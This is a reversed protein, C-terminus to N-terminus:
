RKNAYGAGDRVSVSTEGAIHARDRWARGSCHTPSLGRYRCMQPQRSTFSTLAAWRRSVTHQFFAEQNLTAVCECTIRGVGGLTSTQELSVAGQRFPNWSTVAMKFKPEHRLM